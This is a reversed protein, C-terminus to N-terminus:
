GGEVFRRLSAALAPLAAHIAAITGGLSARLRERAAEAEALVAAEDFALIRGERLAWRGGIMVSNVLERGAHLVFGDLTETFLASTAGGRRVLVLDALDGVALRGSGQGLVRAGGETAMTLVEAGGPWTITDTRPKRHLMMALRMAEFMDHRGGTNASDTGIALTVGLARWTGYPMTGSGLMLNSAPNHAIAVGHRAILAQEEPGLWIAHAVSLREDLLGQRAMEGVTGGPWRAGVRAQAETELLHAHVGVGHRDRLDRWLAMAEPTCRQPANPGLLVRLRGSGGRATAVIEAFRAAWRTADLAPPGGAFEALSPPLALGVLENDGIDHLMPAYGVRLGSAEHAALAAEALHMQPTHDITGVVGSRLREAAGLLLAARMAAADLARGYAVTFLAWLELPLNSETGRLLAAYGHAHADILGPAIWFGAADIRERARLALAHAADPATEIAAIREGEVLLTAREIGRPTVLHADTFVLSM